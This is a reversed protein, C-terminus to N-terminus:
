QIRDALLDWVPTLEAPLSPLTGLDIRVRITKRGERTLLNRYAVITVVGGRRVRRAM